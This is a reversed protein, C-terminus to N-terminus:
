LEFKTVTSTSGNSSSIYVANGAIVPRSPGTTGSLAGSWLPACTNPTGSCGDVGTTDFALLRGDQTGVFVINAAVSPPGLGTQTARRPM